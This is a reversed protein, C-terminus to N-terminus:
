LLWIRRWLYKAFKAGSNKMCSDAANTMLSVLTSLSTYTTLFFGFSSDSVHYFAAAVLSLLTLMNILM